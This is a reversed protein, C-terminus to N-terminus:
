TIDRICTEFCELEDTAIHIDRGGSEYIAGDVMLNDVMDFDDILMGDVKCFGNEDALVMVDSTQDLIRKLHTRRDSTYGKILKGKGRAYGIEIATGVDMEPGRFPTLNAVVIDCGDILAENAKYIRLGVEWTNKIDGVEADFPSVGEFGYKACIDKKVHLRKAADGYFVDPGALYIRKM